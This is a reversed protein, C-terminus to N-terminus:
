ISWADSYWNFNLLKVPKDTTYSPQTITIANSETPSALTVTGANSINSATAANGAGNAYNVSFNSPNYVYMNTGDSGGWLWSPQGGQGSWNWNFNSATMNPRGTVKSWSVDNIQGDTIGLNGSSQIEYINASALYWTVAGAPGTLYVHGGSSFTGTNGSHVIRIYEEWKGTGATPTLWYVQANTGQSNEANVVNYGVPIKARFRQVFTANARSM